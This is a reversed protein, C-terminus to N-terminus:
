LESNQALLEGNGVDGYKLKTFLFRGSQAYALSNKFFAEGLCSLWLTVQRETVNSREPVLEVRKM